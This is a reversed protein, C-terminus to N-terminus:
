PQRPGEMTMGGQQMVAKVAKGGDFVIRLRFSPDFAAGFTDDGAYRLAMKQQGKPEFALGNGDVFIRVPLTVGNPLLVNYTGEYKARAEAALPVVPAARPRARMPLGFVASALNTALLGPSSGLTNTFVVVRLSDDPFWMQQVSFGNVDGGHQIMRHTGLMGPVLAFGYNQKGGGVLTDPTTMLTYTAPSVVRGSTLATQWRLFDPVSMCLAGAAHPHTMSLYTTSVLAGEKLDYGAAHTDSTPRSPCYTASRMGLPTFFNDRMYDAYSKGTVKELVMGLLVYGTNNYRYKTGIPFDLTDNAVFAVLEATTLDNAWTKQWSPSATYSHIGSTHNLLRGITVGSWQEYQPLYRTVPDSLSVAGREVLQMVAAATFQKTISGVRYVTSRDAHLRRERDREGVGRLLLTDSGRVVAVTAGAAPVSAVFDTVLSDLRAVVAGRSPPTPPTTAPQQAGAPLSTAVVTAVLLLRLSPRM